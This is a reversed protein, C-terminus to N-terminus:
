IKMSEDIDNALTSTSGCMKAAISCAASGSGFDLVSKGNVVEPNDLIYRGVGQGGPWYFAWFPDKAFPFHEDVTQHFLRCNATILHLKIEPTLHNTVIETEKAIM